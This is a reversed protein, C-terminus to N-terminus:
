SPLSGRKKKKELLLRCVLNERSQLESTHEESRSKIAGILSFSRPKLFDENEALRLASTVREAIARSQLLEYETKLYDFNSGGESIPLADPLPRAYRVASPADSSLTLLWCIPAPP